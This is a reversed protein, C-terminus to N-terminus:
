TGPPPVAPRANGASSLRRRLWQSVVKRESPTIAGTLVLLVVYVLTAGIATLVIGPFSRANVLWALGAAPVTALAARGLQPLSRPVRWLSRAAWLYALWTFGYAVATAAAAGVTGLRPVLLSCVLFNLGACIATLLGVTRTRRAAYLGCTEIVAFGWFSTGLAILLVSASCGAAVQENAIIRFLPPALLPAVAIFLLAFMAYIRFSHQVYKAATARDAEWLQMVKPTLAMQIPGQVFVILSGLTYHASYIGVHTQDLVSSIVFRDSRDLVWMAIAAPILPASYRLADRLLERDVRRLPAIRNGHLTTVLAIAGGIIALALLVEVIGFGLLVLVVIAALEVMSGAFDVVSRLKIRDTARYLNLNLNRVTSSVVIALGLRLIRQDHSGVLVDAMAPSAGLGLLICALSSTALSVFLTTGYAKGAALRDAAIFRILSHHLNLGVIATVLFTFALTQSWTGFADTGLGRILLPMTLLGRLKTLVQAGFVFATDALFARAGRVPTPGPSASM